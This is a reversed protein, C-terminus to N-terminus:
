AHIHSHLRICVSGFPAQVRYRKGLSAGDDGGPGALLRALEVSRLLNGVGEGVIPVDQAFRVRCLFGVEIGDSFVHAELVVAEGRFGGGIEREQQVPKVEPFLLADQGDDQGGPTTKRLPAPSTERAERLAKIEPLGM